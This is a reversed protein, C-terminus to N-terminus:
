VPQVRTKAGQEEAAIQRAMQCQKELDHPLPVHIFEVQPPMRGNTREQECLDFMAKDTLLIFRQNADCLLLFLIDSRIKNLKPTAKRGPATIGGSTSVSAILKNDQSIADFEFLGGSSLRLQGKHFSQRFHKPLWTERIWNEAQTQAKSDAM